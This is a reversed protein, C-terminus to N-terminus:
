EPASPLPRHSGTAGRVRLFLVTVALLLLHKLTCTLSVQATGPSRPRPDVEVKPQHCQVARGRSPRGESGEAGQLRGEARFVGAWFGARPWPGLCVQSYRDSPM